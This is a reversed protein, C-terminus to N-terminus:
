GAHAAAGGPGATRGYVVIDRRHSALQAARVDVMGLQRLRKFLRPLSEIVDPTTIKFTFYVGMLTPLLAELLPTVASLAIAPACNMDVLLWQVQAPLADREVEKVAKALHTFHCGKVKALAPLGADMVAPDIGVTNVGRELLAYAAGGPGSGVEVATHGAVIPAGSWQMAEVLKAYARSPAAQPLTVPYRGGAHPNRKASHRHWGVWVTDPDLLVVDLVAEKGVAVESATFLAPAAAVLDARWRAVDLPASDDPLEQGPANHDRAFVHLCLPGHAAHLPTALAVVAAVDNAQGLAVGHARAFISRLRFDGPVPGDTNKFTIFGPRAFASRLAPHHHGLEAKLWAEAGVQCVAFLFPSDVVKSM